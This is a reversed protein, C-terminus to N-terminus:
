VVMYIVDKEVHTQRSSNMEDKEGQRTEMAVFVLGVIVMSAGLVKDVTWVDQRHNVFADALLAIPISINLGVTAVTPSTLVVSTGWLYDPLLNGFVGKVILWFPIAWRVNDLAVSSSTPITPLNMTTDEQMITLIAVPGLLVLNLFGVCGLLLPMSIHDDSPTVKRITITYGAHALACVLGAIDGWAMSNTSDDGSSSYTDIDQVSSLISGVFALLVGLLKCQDFKEQGYLVAIIFTFVGGLNSIISTSSISTYSLAYNYSYNVLFWLPGVQLGSIMYRKIIQIKSNHQGTMISCNSANTFFDTQGEANRYDVVFSKKLLFSKENPIMTEVVDLEDSENSTTSFTSSMTIDDQSEKNNINNKNNSSRNGIKHEKNMQMEDLLRKESILGFPIMFIFLCCGAWTVLFPSVFNYEVSLYQVITATGNWLISSSLICALGLFYENM